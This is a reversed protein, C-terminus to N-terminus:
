WNIQFGISGMLGQPLKTDSISVTDLASSIDINVYKFLTAGLSVYSIGTGALNRRYGLRANPIWWNDMSLGASVTAWQYQDGMPDTAPDADLGLHAAWRRNETMISAELKVQSDMTYDQDSILYGAINTSTYNTLDVEPFQFRPENINTIQAGLQYNRGVWLAGIDIGMRTDDNFESDRIARFLEESDTIDGFRVSLRSLKMLYLKSEVGVYLSGADGSWVPRSYGLNFEFTQAAKTVFSSDNYLTVGLAGTAETITMIVQESLPIDLIDLTTPRTVWDELRQLAEDYDFVLPETIGYGKATGTWNLGFTWSGGMKQQGLVFPADAALWAKGYGENTIIALLAAQKVVENAVADIAARTDPDLSDWIEGLDIGSDPKDEPHQGPANGDSGPPSPEYAASVADILDFIEQVNGYELGAAGSFASGRVEEGSRQAFNAAAAAPNSSASQVRQGHTVDGYTLNSGAPQYLPAAAAPDHALCLCALAAGLVLRTSSTIQQM